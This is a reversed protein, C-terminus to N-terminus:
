KDEEEVVLCRDAMSELLVFAEREFLRSGWIGIDVVWAGLKLEDYYMEEAIRKAMKSVSCPREAALIKCVLQESKGQARGADRLRLTANPSLM